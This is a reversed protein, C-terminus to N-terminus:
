PAKSENRPLAEDPSRSLIAILECIQNIRKGNIATIAKAAPHYKSSVISRLSHRNRPSTLCPKRKSRQVCFGGAPM